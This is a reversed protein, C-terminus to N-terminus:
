RGESLSLAVRFGNAPYRVPADYFNRASVTLDAPQSRWSGGRLVRQGCRPADWSTGDAPAREYTTHWCDAVWEAVGGLMDHLGWPNPPFSGVAATQPDYGGGGCGNCNVKAAGIERGWPYRTTTGARAAYEWEAESPLRYPKGTTERLWATYQTADAWSVNTIPATDRGAPGTPKYECGGAAVCANWEAQTVEFKGIAFAPLEVRHRPQESPDTTSGMEFGGGPLAVMAPCLDCDRFERIPRARPPATPAVAAVPPAPPAAATRSRGATEATGAAATPPADGVPLKRLHDGFVYGSRGDSLAVRLWPTGAVIGTVRANRGRELAGVPPATAEASRRVITAIRAEYREEVDVITLRDRLCITEGQRGEEAQLRGAIEAIKAANTTTAAACTEYNPYEVGPEVHVLDCNGGACLLIALVYGAMHM